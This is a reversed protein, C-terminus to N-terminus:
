ETSDSCLQNGSVIGPFLASEWVYSIRTIKFNFIPKNPSKKRSSLKELKNPLVLAFYPVTRRKM